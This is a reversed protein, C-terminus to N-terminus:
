PAAGRELKTSLRLVEEAIRQTLARREDSKVLAKLRGAQAAAAERAAPSASALWDIACIAAFRPNLDVEDKVEHEIAAVLAPVSSTSGRRGLEYAARERAAPEPSALLAELCKIEACGGVSDLTKQYGRLIKVRAAVTSEKEAACDVEGGLAKCEKDFLAPEEKVVATLAKADAKSGLLTLGLACFERAGFNGQKACAVLKPAASPDGIQVLACRPRAPEPTRKVWRRSSRPWRRRRACGAWPM